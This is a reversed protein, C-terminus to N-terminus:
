DGRSREAAARLAEKQAARERRGRDAEWDSSSVKEGRVVEWPIGLQDLRDSAAQTYSGEYFWVKKIDETKVQGWVQIETYPSAHDVSPLLSPDNRGPYDKNFFASRITPETLPEAYMIPDHGVNMAIVSDGGTITTRERLDEKLEISIEGYQDVPMLIGVGGAPRSSLYGYIPRDEPATESTTGFVQNEFKARGDEFIAGASTGTEAQAKFRGDDLVKELKSPRVRIYPNAEAVIKQWHEEAEKRYDEVKMGNYSATREILKEQDKDVRSQWVTPTPPIAQKGKRAEDRKAGDAAAAVREREADLSDQMQDLKAMAEDAAEITAVGAEAEDVAATARDVDLGRLEISEPAPPKPEEKELKKLEDVPLDPFWEPSCPSLFHRCNFGGRYELPPGAKGQWDWDNWSEIEERSFIRGMRELCFDRSDKIATGEYLFYDLGAEKAKGVSVANNFNMVSDVAYTDVYSTMPRGRIDQHGTLAGQVAKTLESFPAGSAVYDYMKKAIDEQASTGMEIFENYTSTRLAEIMDRDVGTFEADIDMDNWSKKIEKAVAPFGKMSTRVAEGYTEEFLKALDAHVRQAQKLNTKPGLLKGDTTKFQQLRDIIRGELKSLATRLLEQHEAITRDLMNGQREAIAKVRREWAKGAKTAM